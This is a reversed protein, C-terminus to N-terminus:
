TTGEVVFVESQSLLRAGKRSYSSSGLIIRHPTRLLKRLREEDTGSIPPTM